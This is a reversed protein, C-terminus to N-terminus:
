AVPCISKGLQYIGNTSPTVSPDAFAHNGTWSRNHRHFSSVMRDAALMEEGGVFFSASM